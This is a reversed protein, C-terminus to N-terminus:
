YDEPPKAPTEPLTFFFRAGAGPESEAWISGGHRDIVRRVTALGVGTGEFDQKSHLRQFVEFLKDAYKMDFGAGNDSLQYVCEGNRTDTSFEIVPHATKGTYKWANSILNELVIRLLSADGRAQIGDQINVGVRREPQESQHQEIIEHCLDSLDVRSVNIEHRTVRSLVLLDDILQGMRHTNKRIRQLYDRATADLQDAYDECLSESFGDIARLPGRLDHSVSYSFSELEKNSRRLEETRYIVLDELHERHMILESESQIREIEAVARDAFLQAIEIVFLDNSISKRDMLVMLGLTAGDPAFLPIGVYSQIANERLLRDGPFKDQVRTRFTCPAASEIVEAGPSGHTNWSTNDVIAGDVCRSITHLRGGDPEDLMAILVHDVAFLEHLQLVLQDLYSHGTYAAVGSTLHNIAHQYHKRDTIDVVNVSMFVPNGHADWSAQGRAQFWRYDGSKTRMRYQSHFPTRFHLHANIASWTLERDEPHIADRFWATDASFERRDYGLISYFRDSLWIVDQENPDCWEWYGGCAGQMALRFRERSAQLNQRTTELTESVQALRILGLLILASGPIYALLKKGAASFATDPLFIFRDLVPFNGALDLIAAIALLAFGALLPLRAAQDFSKARLWLLAFFTLLCVSVLSEIIIDTM